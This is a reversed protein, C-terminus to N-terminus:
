LAEGVTHAIYELLGGVLTPVATPDTGGALAVRKIQLGVVDDHALNAAPISLKTQVLRKATAHINIDGSDLTATAGDVAESGDEKCATYFINWRVEGSQLAYAENIYWHLEIDLDASEDWDYPVEFCYYAIDNIKFEYGMYNGLYVTDPAAAGKGFGALALDIDKTVRATGHLIVVGAATIETYNAEGGIRVSGDPRIPVFRSLCGPLLLRRM